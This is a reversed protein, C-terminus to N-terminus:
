DRGLELGEFWGFDLVKRGLDPSGLHVYIEVIKQDSWGGVRMLDLLDPKVSYRWSAWTHRLLHPRISRGIVKRSLRALKQGPGFFRGDSESWGPWIRGEDIDPMFAKTRNCLKVSRPKLTETLEGAKTRWFTVKSKDPSVDQAELRMVEGTRGGTGVFFTILPAFGPDAAILKEVEEPTIIEPRKQPSRPRELLMPTMMKNKAAFKLIVSVPSYFHRKRTAPKVGPMIKFSASDIRDQTIDELVDNGLEMLVKDFYPFASVDGGADLWRNVADSFTHDPRKKIGYVDEFIQREIAERVRDAEARSRTKASQDVLRGHHTGRVRWIGSGKRKEIKLM